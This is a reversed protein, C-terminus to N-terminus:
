RKTILILGNLFNISYLDTRLDINESVIREILLDERRAHASIGAIQKLGCFNVADVM